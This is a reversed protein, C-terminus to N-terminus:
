PTRQALRGDSSTPRSEAAFATLRDSGTILLRGDAVLLHGGSAGRPGLDIRRVLRASQRDFVFVNTRTPWWVHQPTLLGRGYGIQEHGEPWQSRVRGADPGLGEIWHLKRGSAILCDESVGLLHVVDALDASSRWLMQGNDAALAFVYPTDAPAVYLTGRDALCPTLDRAWHDAPELLHGKLARPYTTLWRIRGSATALAAVAGLNTNFYLTDGVLTLLGNTLEAFIGRAPTEAACVFQLWRRAGTRADLCTVYAQPRIDSRRMAVYVDDGQVLPAGEYAWGDEPVAKWLLRGQSQLDLCILYNTARARAPQQPLTTVGSGMRAYLRRDAITMTHRATGMGGSSLVGGELTGHLPDRYVARTGSGWAPQGTGSEFALIEIQNNLYLLNEALVPHFRLPAPRDEAVVPNRPQSGLSAPEDPLDIAQSWVVDGVALPAVVERHRQPAGAFTPWDAVRPLDPWTRSEQILEKLAEVLLVDRGGLRGRANPHLRDFQALQSEAEDIRGEFISLMVLRARVEALNKDTDPFSLWTRKTGDPPEFPLIRQWYARAAAYHGEEFLSEGLGLLADDGWRSAFAEDAIRELAARDRRTEWAEYWQGAIPDVLDRYLQLAEPPFDVLKLHCLTRTTVYRNGSIPLLKEGSEEMVQRLSDVAESWKGDALYTDVRNLYTVVTRGAEEVQVEDALDYRRNTLGMLGVQAQAVACVFAVALLGALGRCLACRRNSERRRM